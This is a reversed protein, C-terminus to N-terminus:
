DTGKAELKAKLRDLSEQMLPAKMDEAMMGYFKEWPYWKLDEMIYWVIQTSDAHRKEISFGSEFPRDDGLTIYTQIGKDSQGAVQMTNRGGRQDTWAISGGAGTDPIPVIKLDTADSLLRNWSAWGELNKVERLPITSDGAVRVWRSTMVRSPMLASIGLLVAFLGAFGIILPKIWKM